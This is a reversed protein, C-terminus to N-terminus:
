SLLRRVFQMFEVPSSKTFQVGSRVSGSSYVHESSLSRTQQTTQLWDTRLLDHRQRQVKCMVRKPTVAPDVIKNFYVAFPRQIAELM